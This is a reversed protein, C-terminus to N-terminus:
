LKDNLHTKPKSKKFEQGEGRECGGVAEGRERAGEYGERQVATITHKVIKKGKLNLRGEHEAKSGQGRKSDGRREGTWGDWM